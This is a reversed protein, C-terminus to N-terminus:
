DNIEILEQESLKEILNFLDRQLTEGDVDYEVLLTDYAEQITGGLTLAKWMNTGVDDLGYYCENKLNLLVSEGGVENVLTEPAVSVRQQFYIQKM